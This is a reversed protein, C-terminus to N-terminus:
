APVMSSSDWKWSGGVAKFGAREFLDKCLFNKDNPIFLGELSDNHLKVESLCRLEVDLGIVRCSMVFQKVTKAQVLAMGVLGYETFKDAVEFAFIQLGNRFENDMEAQTWRKGTTNFQNTKNILELVRSFKPHDVSSVHIGTYRINLSALFEDRSLVKRQSDRTIQAKVMSNRRAAEGTMVAPQTEPAWLLIRRIYYLDAGLTRIEPFASKVLHREVPNDDIFVVSSPLVNVEAIVESVNQAKSSWNIKVSAFDEIRLRGLWMDNWVAAVRDASNKSVLAIVIGRQKLYLAAEAVGLPWGELTVPDPSDSEAVVGRWLTDDIDFIVLKVAGIRNITIFQGRVEEWLARIFEGTRVTYHDSPPAPVHMRDQDGEHDYDSLAAAHNYQFLVDDLFYKAGYSHLIEEFNVLYFNDQRGIYDELCDNLKQIFYGFNRLDRRDIVRGMSAQQPAPLNLIFTPLKGDRGYATAQELLFELSTACQEFLSEFSEYDDYAIRAHAFDPVVSRVPIQVLQCDYDEIPRPPQPPLVTGNNFLVYDGPVGDKLNAIYDGIGSALCSGVILWRKIPNPDINM